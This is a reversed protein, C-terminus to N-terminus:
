IIIKVVVVFIVKKFYFFSTFVIFIRLYTTIPESKLISNLFLFFWEKDSFPKKTSKSKSLSKKNLSLQNPTLLEM